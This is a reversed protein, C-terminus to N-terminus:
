RKHGFAKGIGLVAAAFASIGALAVVAGLACRGREESGGIEDREVTATYVTFGLASLSHLGATFADLSTRDWEGSEPCVPFGFGEESETADGVLIGNCTFLPKVVNFAGAADCGGGTGTGSENKPLLFVIRTSKEFSDTEM